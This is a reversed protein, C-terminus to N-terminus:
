RPELGREQRLRHVHAHALDLSRQLTALVERALPLARDHEPEQEMHEIISAVHAVPREGAEVDREAQDLADEAMAPLISNIALKAL